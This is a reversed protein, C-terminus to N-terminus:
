KIKVALYIGALVMILIFVLVVITSTSIASQTPQQPIVINYTADEGEPIPQHNVAYISSGFNLFSGTLHTVGGIIANISGTDM